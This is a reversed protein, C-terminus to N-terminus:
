DPLVGPMPQIPETQAVARNRGAAKARYLAKDAAHLLHVLDVKLVDTAAVGISVTVAETTGVALEHDTEQIRARLREALELAGELGTGPLAVVFEEGGIRAALDTSRVARRCIDAVDRLVRDGAAHGYTDNVRKFHDIDLVLVAFPQGALQLREHSRAAAELFHRRNSLGTLADTNAQHKYLNERELSLDMLRANEVVLADLASAATEAKDVVEYDSITLGHELDFSKSHLQMTKGHKDAIYYLCLNLPCSLFPNDAVDYLQKYAELGYLDHWIYRTGKPAPSVDVSGAFGNQIFLETLRNLDQIDGQEAFELGHANLYDVIEKGVDRLVAGEAFLNYKALVRGFAVLLAEYLRTRFDQM